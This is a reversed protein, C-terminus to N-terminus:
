RTPPAPLVRDGSPPPLTIPRVPASPPQAVPRVPAAVPAGPMAPQPQAQPLPKIPNAPTGPQALPHSGPPPPLMTGDQPAPQVAAGNADTAPTGAAQAVAAPDIDIYKFDQSEAFETYVWDDNERVVGDPVAREEEPRKALAVHMYDIWLPLAVTAGFEKGGLSRPEDYGMWAVAVVGGGYGSFWGDMADSTTGTKGAIDNRGLRRTAEAGTGYKAVDHLMTDMVFVNRPDLVRNDEVRVEPTKTEAIVKGDGDQIKSILYPQVKYGGNAFIAYAGVM